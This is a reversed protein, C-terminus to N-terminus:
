RNRYTTKLWSTKIRKIRAQFSKVPLGSLEPISVEARYDILIDRGQKFVLRKHSRHGKLKLSSQVTIEEFLEVQYRTRKTIHDVQELFPNSDNEFSEEQIDVITGVIILNDYNLDLSRQNEYIPLQPNEALALLKTGQVHDIAFLTHGSKTLGLCGIDELCLSFQKGLRNEKTQVVEVQLQALISSAPLFAGFIIIMLFRM